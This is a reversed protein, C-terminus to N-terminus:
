FTKRQREHKKNRLYWDNKQKKVRAKIQEVTLGDLSMYQQKRPTGHTTLDLALRRAKRRWYQEMGQKRLRRVERTDPRTCPRHGRVPVVVPVTAHRLVVEPTLGLAALTM